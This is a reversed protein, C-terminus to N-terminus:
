FFIIEIVVLAVSFSSLFIFVKLTNKLMGLYEKRKQHRPAIEIMRSKISKVIAIEMAPDQMLLVSELQERSFTKQLDKLVAKSVKKILKKDPCFKSSIRLGNMTQAALRGVPAEWEQKTDTHPGIAGCDKLVMFTVDCVFVLQQKSQDSTTSVCKDAAASSSALEVAPADEPRTITESLQQDGGAGAAAECNSKPEDADLAQPPEMVASDKHRETIILEAADESSTVGSLKNEQPHQDGDAGDVAECCSKSTDAASSQPPEM